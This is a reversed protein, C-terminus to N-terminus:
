QAAGGKDSEPEPPPEEDAVRVRQAPEPEPLSQEQPAEEELVMEVEELGQAKSLSESLEYLIRACHMLGQAAFAEAVIQVVEPNDSALAKRFIDEVARKWADSRTALAARARLKQSYTPSYGSIDFAQAVQLIASPQCSHMARLFVEEHASSCERRTAVRKETRGSLLVRVLGYVGVPILLAFM